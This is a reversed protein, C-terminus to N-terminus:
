RWYIRNYYVAKPQKEAYKVAIDRYATIRTRETESQERANIITLQHNRQAQREQLRFRERDDSALKTQISKILPAVDPYSSSSPNIQITLELAKEAGGYNQNSAWLAKAQTLKEKGEADILKQYIVASNSLSNFYCEKCVEPVLSLKYIAEQYKGQNSLAKADETIFDCQTNYYAIIKNKGEEILLALNKNKPNIKKLADIFAKNENTGVGKLSVTSNSFIKDEIADGIFFTIDVNQAVMQPPGAIIDKTGINISATLIFRPNASSGGMGYATAIQNLKNQLLQKSEQPLSAKDSIYTNLVIRGFDDLKPQVQANTYFAVFLLLATIFRKM